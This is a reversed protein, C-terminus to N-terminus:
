TNSNVLLYKIVNIWRNGRQLHTVDTITITPKIEKKINKEHGVKNFKYM